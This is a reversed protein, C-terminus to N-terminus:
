KIQPRREEPYLTTTAKEKPRWGWHSLNTWHIIYARDQSSSTVIRTPPSKKQRQHAPKYSLCTKNRRHSDQRSSIPNTNKDQKSNPHPVGCQTNSATPHHYDQICTSAKMSNESTLLGQTWSNEPLRTDEVWCEWELPWAQDRTPSGLDWLSDTIAIFSILVFLHCVSLFSVYFFGLCITFAFDSLSVFVFSCVCLFLVLLTWLFCLIFSHSLPCLFILIIDVM